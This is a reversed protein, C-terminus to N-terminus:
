NRKSKYVEKVAVKGMLICSDMTLDIKLEIELTSNEIVVKQTQMGIYSFILVDGKKLKKPFEFYGDLDTQIGTTTGELLVSAGPLPLNGEFVTGKVIMNKESKSTKIESTNEKPKIAKKTDQAQATGISFLSLCALGIGSLFSLTNSKKPKRNYVKLQNSNFRGCTNQTNKHKFFSIIDESNMKTFDIVDKQCSGCFGGNSTPSFQDFNESCPTKISLNFTNKM